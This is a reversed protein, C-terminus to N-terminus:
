SAPEPVARLIIATAYEGPNIEKALTKLAAIDAQRAETV